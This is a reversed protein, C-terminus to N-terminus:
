LEGYFKEYNDYMEQMIELQKNINEKIENNNINLKSSEFSVDISKDNLKNYVKFTFKYKDDIFQLNIIKYSLKNEINLEEVIEMQSCRIKGNTNLPVIIHNKHIKVKFIKYDKEYLSKPNPLNNKIKDIINFSISPITFYNSNSSLTFFINNKQNKAFYIAFELTSAHLGFSCDKNINKDAKETYVKGVEYIIKNETSYMNTGDLNVAKFLYVYDGETEVNYKEIFDDVRKLLEQDSMNEKNEEKGLVRNYYNIFDSTGITAIKSDGLGVKPINM